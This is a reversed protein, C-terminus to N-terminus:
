LIYFEISFKNIKKHFVFLNMFWWQFVHMQSLNLFNEKLSESEVFIPYILIPNM